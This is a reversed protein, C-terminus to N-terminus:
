RSINERASVARESLHVWQPRSALVHRGTGTDQLEVFVHEAGFIDLWQRLARRAGDYDDALLLRSLESSLCGTLAVLGEAHQTLIEKDIRPRYYFGELYAASALKILNHYGQTNRALLTLHHSAPKGGRAERDFRSGPAVYAEYGIIPKLGARLAGEYFEIAGFMNGHDTITLAPMGFKKAAQFLEELRCAGDLLSYHTHVHLHVFDSNAMGM